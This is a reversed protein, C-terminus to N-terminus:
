GNKGRSGWGPALRQAVQELTLKTKAKYRAYTKPDWLEVRGKVGLFLVEKDLPVIKLLENPIRLRGQSDLPVDYTHESFLRDAIRGNRDWVSLKQLEEELSAYGTKTYLFLCGDLGLTVTFTKQDDPFLSLRVAKPPAVRKKHDM